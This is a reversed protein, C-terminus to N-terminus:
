TIAALYDEILSTFAQGYKQNKVDGVGNVLMFDTPNTPLKATMDALSADSFITFAPVGQEDALQKRLHKLKAFLRRDINTAEYKNSTRSSVKFKPVALM